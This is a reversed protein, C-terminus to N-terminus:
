KYEGSDEITEQIYETLVKHLALHLFRNQEVLFQVPQIDIQIVCEDYSGRKVQEDTIKGIYKSLKKQDLYKSTLTMQQEASAFPTVKVSSKEKVLASYNTESMVIHESAGLTISSVYHTIGFFRVFEKCDNVVKALDEKSATSVYNNLVAISSPKVLESGEAISEKKLMGRDEIRKLIWESLIEEFTPEVSNRKAADSNGAQDLNDAISSTTIDPVVKNHMKFSVSRNIIKKGVVKKSSSSSRSMEGELGITVPTQPISVSAKLVAQLDTSSSVDSKYNQISGGEETGMIDEFRVQRVQFSKKNKWPSPNTADVGRGLGLDQFQLIEDEKIVAYEKEM